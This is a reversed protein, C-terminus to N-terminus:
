CKCIDGGAARQEADVTEAGRRVRCPATRGRGGPARHPRVESTAAHVVLLRQGEVTPECVIPFYPPDFNRCGGGIWKRAAALVGDPLGRGPALPREEGRVAGLVVYGGNVESFDNAFGCIARLLRPGTTKEDWDSAFEVREPAIAGGPFLDEAETQAIPILM